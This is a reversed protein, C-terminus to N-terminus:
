LRDLQIDHAQLIRGLTSKSPSGLGLEPHSHLYQALDALSWHTQGLWGVSAPPQCALVVIAAQVQEPYRRPAPRHPRDRLGALREQAFRRRWREVTHRGLGLSRAIATTGEGAAARRVMEARQVLQHPSTRARVLRDLSAREEDTLVIPLATRAM